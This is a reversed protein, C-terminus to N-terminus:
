SLVLFTLYSYLLPGTFLLSDILDLSGGIGPIIAGSDKSQSDRKIVSEALDGVVSIAPLLLGLVWAHLLTIPRLHDPYYKVLVVSVALSLLVGGACGEWTKKPSIRPSLKHRGVLSGIVYAGIDTCKTVAVLYIALFIGDLHGMGSGMIIKLLFHFLFPIYFFGFLTLAATAVPTAHPKEFVTRALVGIVALLICLTNLADSYRFGKQLYVLEVYTLLLFLGGCFLGAKKFVKLGKAEQMQYFEFQAVLCLVSALLFLGGSMEQAALWAILGIIVVTSLLRSKLM